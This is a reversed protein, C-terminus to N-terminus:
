PRRPLFRRPGARSGWSSTPLPAARARCARTVRAPGACRGRHAHRDVASVERRRPGPATDPGPKPDLPPDEPESERAVPPAFRGRGESPDASGLRGSKGRTVPGSVGGMTASTARDSRSRPPGAPGVWRYGSTGSRLVPREGKSPSRRQTACDAREAAFRGRGTFAAAARGIVRRHRLPDASRSREPHGRQGEGRGRPPRTRRAPGRTERWGTRRGRSREPPPAPGRPGRRM